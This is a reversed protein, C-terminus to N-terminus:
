SCLNYVNVHLPFIIMFFLLFFNSLPLQPKHLPVIVKWSLSLFVMSFESDVYGAVSSLNLGPVEQICIYLTAVVDDQKTCFGQSFDMGSLLIGIQSCKGM